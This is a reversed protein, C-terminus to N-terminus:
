KPQAAEISQSLRDVSETVGRKVQDWNSATAGDIRAVSREATKRAARITALARDSVAGGKSKAESALQNIQQDLQALQQRISGAFEQRRDFSFEHVPAATDEAAVAPTTAEATATDSVGGTQSAPKSRCGLCVSLVLACGLALGRM